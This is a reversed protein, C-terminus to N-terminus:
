LSPRYHPEPALSEFTPFMPEPLELFEIEPYDAVPYEIYLGAKLMPSDALLDVAGGTTDRRMAAEIQARAQAEDQQRAAMLQRDPELDWTDRIGLYERGDPGLLWRVEQVIGEPLERRNRQTFRSREGAAEALIDSLYRAAETSVPRDTRHDGGDRHDLLERYM